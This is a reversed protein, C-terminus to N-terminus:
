CECGDKGDKKPPYPPPCPPFKETDVLIEEERDVKFKLKIVTKEVLKTFVKQGMKEIVGCWDDRKGEIKAELLVAKDGEKAGDEKKDIPCIPVYGGFPIKTTFHYVPGCVNNDCAKEVTKYNIDKWLYANFLVKGCIVKADYVEVWEKIEKVMYVPPCPPTICIEKEVFFQQEGKGVVVPVQLLKKCM